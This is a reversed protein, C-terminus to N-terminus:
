TITRADNGLSKGPLLGNSNSKETTSDSTDSMPIATYLSPPGRVVSYIYFTCM